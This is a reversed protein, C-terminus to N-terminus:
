RCYLNEGWEPLFNIYSLIRVRKETPPFYLKTYYTRHSPCKPLYLSLQAVQISRRVVDSNISMSLFFHQKCNRRRMICKQDDNVLLAIAFFIKSAGSIFLGSDEVYNALFLPFSAQLFLTRPTKATRNKKMTYYGQDCAEKKMLALLLLLLLQLMGFLRHHCLLLTCLKSALSVYPLDGISLLLPLPFFTIQM